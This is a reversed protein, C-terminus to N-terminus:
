GKITDRFRESKVEDSWSFITYLKQTLAGAALIRHTKMEPMM